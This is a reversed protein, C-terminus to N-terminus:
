PIHAAPAPPVGPRQDLRPVFCFSLDTRKESHCPTQCPLVKHALKAKGPLRAGLIWAFGGALELTVPDKTFISSSLELTLLVFTNCQGVEFTIVATIKRNVLLGKNPDRHIHM